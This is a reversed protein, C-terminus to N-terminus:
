VRFALGESPMVEGMALRGWGEIISGMGKGWTVGFGKFGVRRIELWTENEEAWYEKEGIRAIARDLMGGAQIRVVRFPPPAAAQGAGAGPVQGGPLNAPDLIETGVTVVLLQPSTISSSSSSSLASTWRGASGKRGGFDLIVVRRGQNGYKKISEAPDDSTLAM